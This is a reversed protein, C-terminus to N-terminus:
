LRVTTLCNIRVSQSMAIRNAYFYCSVVVSLLVQVQKSYLLTAIHKHM